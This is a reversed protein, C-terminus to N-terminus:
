NVISMARKAAHNEAGARKMHTWRANPALNSVSANVMTQSDLVAYTTDPRAAPPSTLITRLLIM